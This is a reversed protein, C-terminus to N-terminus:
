VGVGGGGVKWLFSRFLENMEKEELGSSTPGKVCVGILARKM